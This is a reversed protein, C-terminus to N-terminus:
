PASARSPPKRIIAHQPRAARPHHLPSAKTVPTMPRTTATISSKMPKGTARMRMPANWPASPPNAGPAKRSRKSSGAIQPNPQRVAFRLQPTAQFVAIRAMTTPMPLVTIPAASARMATRVPNRKLRARRTAETSGIMVGGKTMPRAM